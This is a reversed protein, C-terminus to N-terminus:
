PSRRAQSGAAPKDPPAREVIVKGQYGDMRIRDGQRVVNTIGPINMVAPVGYERALTAGHSLLSGIEVVVGGARTLVSSWAPRMNRCVVIDGPEVRQLEGLGRILRCPGAAIGPSCPEGVLELLASGGNSADPGQPVDHADRRPQTQRSQDYARKRDAIRARLATIAVDGVAAQQIEDWTLLFLDQESHLIQAAKLHSGIERAHKRVVMMARYVDHNRNEMFPFYQEARSLVWHFIPWRLSFSGSTSLQQAAKEVARARREKQQAHEHALGGNAPEQAVHKLTSLMADQDIEWAPDRPYRDAWIYGYRDMFTRLEDWFQHGASDRDELALLQTRDLRSVEDPPLIKGLTKGLEYLRLDREVTLNDLGTLLDSVRLNTKRELWLRCLRDLLSVSAKMVETIPYSTYQLELYMEVATNFEVVLSHTDLSPLDQAELEALRRRHDPMVVEVHQRRIQDARLWHVVKWFGMWLRLLLGPSRWARRSYLFGNVATVEPEFATKYYANIIRVWYGHRQVALDVGLPSFSEDYALQWDPGLDVRADLRPGALSTIPRTQVIWLRNDEDLCWEIDQPVDWQREIALGISALHTLFSADGGPDLNSSTNRDLVVRRGRTEGSVLSEADGDVFEVVLANQTRHTPDRTFLVGALRPQIMIQILVAMGGETHALGMQERYRVAATNWYSAWCHRIADLLAREGRINLVTEYLGAFSHHPLDEMTASSRVAVAVPDAAMLQRYRSSVEATLSPDLVVHRMASFQGGPGLNALNLRASEPLHRDYASRTLCFGAPVPFGAALLAGLRAVKGGVMEGHRQDVESLWVVQGLEPNAQEPMSARLL